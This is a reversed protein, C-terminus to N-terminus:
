FHPIGCYQGFKMIPGFHLYNDLGRSPPGSIAAGKMRNTLNVRIILDERGLDLMKQIGSYTNLLLWYMIYNSSRFDLIKGSEESNPDFKPSPNIYFWTSICEIIFVTLSRM